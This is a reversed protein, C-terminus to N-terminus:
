VGQEKCGCRHPQSADLGGAYFARTDAQNVTRLVPGERYVMFHTATRLAADPKRSGLPWTKRDGWRAKGPSLEKPRM